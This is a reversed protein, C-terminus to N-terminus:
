PGGPLAERSAAVVKASPGAASPAACAAIVAVPVGVKFAATATTSGSGAGTRTLSSALSFSDTRERDAPRSSAPDSPPVSPPELVGIWLRTRREMVESSVPLPLVPLGRAAATSAAATDAPVAGALAGDRADAGTITPDAAAGPRTIAASGPVKPGGAPESVLAEAAGPGPTCTGAPPRVAPATSPSTSAHAPPVPPTFWAASPASSTM